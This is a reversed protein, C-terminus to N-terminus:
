LTKLYRRIENHSGVRHLTVTGKKFGFVVRLGLGIRAEYIGSRHLKRLGTGAHRHPSKLALPLKLIVDFLQDRQSAALGAVDKQFQASLVIQM